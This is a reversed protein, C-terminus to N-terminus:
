ARVASRGAAIRELLPVIEHPAPTAVSEAYLEAAGAAYRPDSVVDMIRAKFDKPTTSPGDINLGAGRAAVYRANDLFDGFHKPVVIQPVRHAVASAYTGGGGHHIIASCTPLLLNLPLYDVTRVNPPLSGVDALQVDNFTAVVELDAQGLLEILEPISVGRHSENFFTRGSAGLTLCVRPRKPRDRLWDPLSAAGGFPVRRISITSLGVPPSMRRPMMDITWQGVLLEEDFSHGLRDLTPRMLRAVPDAEPALPGGNLQALRWRLWGMRDLAYMVRAHAAGCERAAIPSPMVLPDWLVLDPRWSGAFAILDEGFARGGAGIEDDAYYITFCALIFNRIHGRMDADEEGIKLAETLEELREDQGTAHVAAPINIDHGLVVANLGAGVIQREMAPHCAILVEHGASQLAWALPINATLHTPAPMTTILVRM